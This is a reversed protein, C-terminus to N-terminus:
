PNYMICVYDLLEIVDCIEGNPLTVKNNELKIFIYMLLERLTNLSSSFTDSYRSDSNWIFGESFGGREISIKEDLGHKETIIQSISLANKNDCCSYGIMFPLHPSKKDHWLKNTYSLIIAELTINRYAYVYLIDNIIISGYDGHFNTNKVVVPLKIIKESSTKVNM